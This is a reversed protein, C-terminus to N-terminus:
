ASYARVRLPISLSDALERCAEIDEESIVDVVTMKVNAGFSKCESAFKLIAAFSEEGFAPSCLENYKEATPANLSVSVTDILSSIEQATARKNILDSLGNTNLRLTFGRDKLYRATKILADYNCTPEGYGCFIVSKGYRSFDFADLAEKIEEFSPSHKDFWLTKAEGVSDGNNRICFKCRCPCANTINLYVKNEYTYVIDAMFFVEPIM